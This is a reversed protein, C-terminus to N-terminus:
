LDTVTQKVIQKELIETAVATGRRATRVVSHHHGAKRRGATPLIEFIVHSLGSVDAVGIYTSGKQVLEIYKKM